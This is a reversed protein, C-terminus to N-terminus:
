RAELIASAISAKVATLRRFQEVTMVMPSLIRGHRQQFRIMADALRERMPDLEENSSVIVVVDIDSEPTDDGRMTSGYLGAWLPASGGGAEVLDRLSDFLEAIAAREGRPRDNRSPAHGFLHLLVHRV